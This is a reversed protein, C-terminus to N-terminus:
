PSVTVPKSVTDTQGGANGVELTVVYTGAAAYAHVPNEQPSQGGDGFDWLFDTPNGSSTNTFTATLGDVSFTFDANLGAAEVCSDDAPVYTFGRVLTDSCGNALNTFTVDVATPLPKMGTVGDGNDDCEQMDFDGSFAPATVAVSGADVTSVSGRVGDFTVEAPEAGAALGSGLFGSGSLTVATGGGEAGSGPSVGSIFPSPATYSFDDSGSASEGTAVNTVTAPGSPPTCGSVTAATLKVDVRGDDVVTVGATEQDVGALSVRLDGNGPDGFGQGLLTVTVPSGGSDVGTYPAQRPAVSSVVLSGGGSSGYQFSAARVAFLGTRPNEVKVDVIQNLLFRGAGTAAPTFVVMRSGDGAVAEANQARVGEFAGGGQDFGFFARADSEFGQGLILVRTGGDNPGQTPDLSFIAPQNFPGGGATYLFGGSLTDSRPAEADLEITVTVDVRRTEGAALAPVPPPTTVQISTATVGGDAVQATADGFTVRLPEAFGQGSITVRDGGVGSGVDPSLSAIFFPPLTAEVVEVRLSSTSDEFLALIEAMGTEDGAFFPTQGAGGTLQVSTETRPDGAEDLGFHGLSTNLEVSSGNPPSQQNSRRRVTLSLTASDGAQLQAPVASLEIVYTGTSNGGPTEQPPAPAVPNSSDCAATTLLLLLSCLIPQPARRM